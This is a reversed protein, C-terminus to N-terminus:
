ECAAMIANILDGGNEKLVRVAKARSCETQQMVLEIDKPDMGTEDVPGDDEPALLEPVDDENDGVESVSLSGLTTATVAWNAPFAQALQGFGMKSENKQRQTGREIDAVHLTPLRDRRVWIDGLADEETSSSEGDSERADRDDEKTALKLDVHSSAKSKPLLAPFRLHATSGLAILQEAEVRLSIEASDVQIVCGRIDERVTSVLVVDEINM